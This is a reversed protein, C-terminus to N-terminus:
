ETAHKNQIYYWGCCKIFNYILAKNIINSNQKQLDAGSCRCCSRHKFLRRAVKAIWIQRIIPVLYATVMSM